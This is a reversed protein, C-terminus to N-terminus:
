RGRLREIDRRERKTPRGAGRERLPVAGNESSPQPPSTDLYSELAMPASTRKVILKRVVLSRERGSDRVRVEDGIRVTQAAKVREGNVRVQGARCATTALTRTKYLRVAWLWSDVRVQGPQTQASM